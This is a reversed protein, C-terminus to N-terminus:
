RARRRARGMLGVGLLLVAFALPERPHRPTLSCGEANANPDRRLADLRALRLLVTAM